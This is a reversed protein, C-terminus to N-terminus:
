GVMYYPFFHGEVVCHDSDDTNKGRDGDIIKMVSDSCFLFNAFQSFTNSVFVLRLIALKFKALFISTKATAM